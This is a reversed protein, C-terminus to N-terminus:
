APPRQQPPQDSANDRTPSDLSTRQETSTGGKKRLAGSTELLYYIGFPVGFLFGVLALYGTGWKNDLWQGAIGPLVMVAVAAFVRSMVEIASSADTIEAKTDRSDRM